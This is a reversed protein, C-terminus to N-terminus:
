DLATTGLATDLTLKMAPVDSNVVRSRSHRRASHSLSVSFVGRGGGVASEGLDSPPELDVLSMGPTVWGRWLNSRRSDGDCTREAM